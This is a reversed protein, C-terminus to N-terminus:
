SRGSAQSVAPELCGLMRAHFAPSFPDVLAPPQAAVPTAYGAEDGAAAAAAAAAVQQEAIAAIPTSSLGPQQQDGEDEEEPDAWVQFSDQQALEAGGATAAEALAAEAADDAEVAVGLQAARAEGLPQLAAAAVAPDGLRRGSGSGARPAREGCPVNEKVDALQLGQLGLQLALDESPPPGQPHAPPSCAAAQLWTAAMGLAGNEHQGAHQPAEAHVSAAGVADLLAQTDGEGDMDLQLALTDDAGPAFGWKSVQTLITGAPM